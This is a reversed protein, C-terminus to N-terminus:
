MNSFSLAVEFLTLFGTILISLISVIWILVKNRKILKFPYLLYSVVFSGPVYLAPIILLNIVTGIKIGTDENYNEFKRDNLYPDPTMMDQIISFFYFVIPLLICLYMALFHFIERWKENMCRIIGFYILPLLVSIFTVLLAM